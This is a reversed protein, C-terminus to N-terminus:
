KPEKLLGLAAALMRTRHQQLWAAETWRAM